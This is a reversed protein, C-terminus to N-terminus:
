KIAYFGAQMGSRWLIEVVAFGVRRLLELHEAVTIPLLVTGFRSIHQDAAEADKGNRIIATRWRELGIRVGQASDPSVTEFTVFVGGKKLMDFCKILAKHRTEKNFYHHSLIATIVDFSEPPYEITETGALVYTTQMKPKNAFKDKAVELMAASPDMLVFHIGPFVEAAESVLIGTGCGADLWATPRPQVIKILELTEEYFLWHYPITKGVNADYERAPKSTKNDSMVPAGMLLNM